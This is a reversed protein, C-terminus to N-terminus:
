EGRGDAPWRYAWFIWNLLNEMDSFRDPSGLVVAVVPHGDPSEAVVALNEGAEETRGTKGGLIDTRIGLLRNTTRLHHVTDGGVSAVDQSEARLLLGLAPDRWAASLLLAVDYASSFHTISDFGTANEARTRSLGLARATEEMARAFAEESGSVHEALAVAADNASPILLGALLDRIRIREGVALNMDAGRRGSAVARPSVTVADDLSSNQLATIATLLKTLSAVPRVASPQHSALVTGSELDFVVSSAARLVPGLTEEVRRPGREGRAVEAFLVRGEPFVGTLARAPDDLREPAPANVFLTALLAVIQVVM